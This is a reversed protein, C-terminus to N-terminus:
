EGHIAKFSAGTVVGYVLHGMLAMVNQQTLANALQPGQGLMIPMILLPGLIWWVFGYAAGLGIALAWTIALTRTQAYTGLGFGFIAGIVASVVLHVVWGLSPQGILSGIMALMNPMMAQMMLGFVIGGALGALAGAVLPQSRWAPLAATSTPQLPTAM